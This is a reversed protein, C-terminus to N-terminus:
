KENDEPTMPLTLQGNHELVMDEYHKLRSAARRRALRATSELEEAVLLADVAATRAQKLAENANPPYPPPLDSMTTRTTRTTTM